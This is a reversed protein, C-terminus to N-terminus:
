QIKAPRKAGVVRERKMSANSVSKTNSWALNIQLLSVCAYEGFCQILTNVVSSQHKVIGHRIEAKVVM